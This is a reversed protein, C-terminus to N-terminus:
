KKEYIKLENATLVYLRNGQLQIGKSASTVPLKVKNLEKRAYHYVHLEDDKPYVLRGNIVQFGSLGPNVFSNYYTGYRDFLLVGIEPDNLYIIGDREIMFNPKVEMGLMQSLDISEHVIDYSNTIKKLKSADQDFFWIYNDESLCAASVNNIGMSSLKFFNRVNMRNDVMVITSYDKYFLLVNFASSADVSSLKGYRSEGYRGTLNGATDYREVQDTNTIIYANNLVDTTLFKAKLNINQVLEYQSSPAAFALFIAILTFISLSLTLSKLRKGM